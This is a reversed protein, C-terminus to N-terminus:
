AVEAPAVDAHSQREWLLVEDLIEAGSRGSQNSVVRVLDARFTATLDMNSASQTLRMAEVADAIALRTETRDLDEYFFAASTYMRQRHFQSKLLQLLTTAQTKTLAKPGYENLLQTETLQGLRLRIYNERLKWPEVGMSQATVFYMDDLRNALHDFADRLDGRWRALEQASNWATYDRVTIETTPPHDRLDRGLTTVEYGAAVAEHTLLWRLFHEEGPHHYGFTEGEIGLLLLRPYSKKLPALVNRAWRGAGGLHHVSFAVQNSLNDDRVFVAIRDGSPLKVWYPGGGEYAGEVQAQGLITFKVGNGHLVQLTNLTVALDPLWMGEAAHGFRHEYTILGWRVLLQQDRPSCLPLIAHHTPQALANGMGWQERHKADAAIIRDYTERAHREMWRTLASGINFSMLDFNGLSANPTYCTATAKENFNQYPEAGPENELTDDLFPNGRQPQYFHGHICFYHDAM